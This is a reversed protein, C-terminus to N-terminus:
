PRQEMVVGAFDGKVLGSPVCVPLRVPQKRLCHRGVHLISIQDPYMVVMEHEQRFHQALFNAVGLLIDFYAEEQVRRKGAAFDVADQRHAVLQQQADQVAIQDSEM